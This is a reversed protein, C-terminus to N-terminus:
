QAVAFLQWRGPVGRLDHEGRDVFEFSSGALLDVLTRSVLVEQPAALAEVRAAIHVTMGSIDDGRSEVEGTHVGVRVTLGMANTADRIACACQVARGPADFVALVGDGTTKVQRGRFRELERRVAEDHRDLVDRWHREGVEALRETSGVIDTFVVTALVRDPQPGRRAGTLFEEIEDLLPDTDGVWYLCDAGSLEVYKAGPIHEALYRGQEVRVVVNDRRHLVLTPVRVSSLLSRVDARYRMALIARATAPSAGRQGARDWWSRFAPDSAVSPAVRALHDFGKEVADSELNVALFRQVVEASTGPYDAAATLRATGNVLILNAVRDPYTTALLIAEACAEAAAFVAARESGAADMVALADEIWQELTPPSSAAVPDSLGIGRADFRIVRGTLALRDQFRVLAREDDMSDIPLVGFSLMLLDPHQEGSVQYALHVDGNRAYRVASSQAMARVTQDLWMPARECTTMEVVATSSM